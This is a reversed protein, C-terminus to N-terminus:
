KVFIVFGASRAIPFVNADSLRRGRALLRRVCLDRELCHLKWQDNMKKFDGARCVGLVRRKGGGM